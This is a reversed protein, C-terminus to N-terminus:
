GPGWPLFLERISHFTRFVGSGGAYKMWGIGGSILQPWRLNPNCLSHRSRKSGFNCRRQSHYRAVTLGVLTCTVVRALVDAPKPVCELGNFRNTQYSIWSFALGEIRLVLVVTSFEAASQSQFHCKQCSFISVPNLLFNPHVLIIITTDLMM